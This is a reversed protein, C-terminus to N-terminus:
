LYLLEYLPIIDYISFTEDGCNEIINCAYKLVHLVFIVLYMYIRGGGCVLKIGDLVLAVTYSSCHWISRQTMQIM